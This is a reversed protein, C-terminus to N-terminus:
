YINGYRQMENSKKLRPNRHVFSRIYFMFLTNRNVTYSKDSIKKMRLLISSCTVSCKHQDEHLNGAM